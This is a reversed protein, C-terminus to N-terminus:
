WTVPYIMKKIQHQFNVGPLFPPFGQLDRVSLSITISHMEFEMRLIERPWRHFTLSLSMLYRGWPCVALSSLTQIGTWHSWTRDIANTWLLVGQGTLSWFVHSLIPPFFLPVFHPMENVCLTEASPAGGCVWTFYTSPNRIVVPNVRFFYVVKPSIFSLSFPQPSSSLFWTPCKM